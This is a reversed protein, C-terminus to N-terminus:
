FHGKPSEASCPRPEMVPVCEVLSSNLYMFVDMYSSNSGYLLIYVLFNIDRKKDGSGEGSSMM